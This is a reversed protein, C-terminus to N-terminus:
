KILKIITNIGFYIISYYLIIFSIGVTLIITIIARKPKRFVWRIQKTENEVIIIKGNSLKQHKIIDSDNKNSENRFDKVTQTLNDILLNQTNFREAIFQEFYKQEGQKM